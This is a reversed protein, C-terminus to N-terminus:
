NNRKLKDNFRKIYRAAKLLNTYSDQFLGLGQNCKACLLGRIVNEEHCHDVVLRGHIKHPVPELGCIACVHNQDVVMQEYDQRTLGYLYKLQGDRAQQKHKEKNNQRWTKIRFNDCKKCVNKKGDSNGKQAYYESLLKGEGCTRCSKIQETM